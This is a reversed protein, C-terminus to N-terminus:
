VIKSWRLLSKDYENPIILDPNFMYITEAGKKIRKLLNNNSLSKYGKSFTVKETPTLTSTSFVVTNTEWERKDQLLKFTFAEPKNFDAIINISKMKNGIMTFKPKPNIKKKAIVWEEDSDLNPLHISKNDKLIFEGEM